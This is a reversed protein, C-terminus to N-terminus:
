VKDLSKRAADTLSVFTIKLYGGEGGVLFFFFIDLPIFGKGSSEVTQNGTAPM